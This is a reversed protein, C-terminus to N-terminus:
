QEANVENFTEPKKETERRRKRLPSTKKNQKISMRRKLSVTEDFVKQVMDGLQIQIKPEM